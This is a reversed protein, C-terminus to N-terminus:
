RVTAVITFSAELADGAALAIVGSDAEGAALRNVGDNANAAPEIALV